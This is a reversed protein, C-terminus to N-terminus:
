DSFYLSFVLNESSYAINAVHFRDFGGEATGDLYDRWIFIKCHTIETYVDCFKVLFNIQEKKKNAEKKKYHEYLTLWYM